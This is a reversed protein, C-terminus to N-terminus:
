KLTELPDCEKDCLNPQSSGFYYTGFCRSQRFQIFTFNSGLKSVKSAPQIFNLLSPLVLFIPVWNLYRQHQNNSPWVSWVSRFDLVSLDSQM